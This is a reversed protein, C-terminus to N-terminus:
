RKRQRAPFSRLDLWIRDRQNEPIRSELTDLTTKIGPKKEANPDAEYTQWKGKRCFWQENGRSNVKENPVELDMQLLASAGIPTVGSNAQQDRLRTWKLTLGLPPLNLDSHVTLQWFNGREAEEQVLERLSTLQDANLSANLCQKKWLEEFGTPPPGECEWTVWERMRVWLRKAFERDTAIAHPFQFRQTWPLTALQKEWEVATGTQFADTLSRTPPTQLSQLATEDRYLFDRALELMITKQSKGGYLLESLETRYDPAFQATFKVTISAANECAEDPKAEQLLLSLTKRTTTLSPDTWSTSPTRSLHTSDAHGRVSLYNSQAYKALQVLQNRQAGRPQKAATQLITQFLEWAIPVNMSPPEIGLSHYDWPMDISRIMLEGVQDLSEKGQLFDDLLHQLSGDEVLLSRQDRQCYLVGYEGLYAPKASKVFKEWFPRAQQRRQRLYAAVELILTSDEARQSRELLNTELIPFLNEQGLFLLVAVARSHAIDDSKQLWLALRAEEKLDRTANLWRQTRDEAVKLIKTEDEGARERDANEEQVTVPLLYLLFSGALDILRLKAGGSMWDSQIKSERKDRLMEVFALFRKSRDGLLDLLNPTLTEWAFGPHKAKVTELPIGFEAAFSVVQCIHLHRGDAPLALLEESLSKGEAQLTRPLLLFGLLGAFLIFHKQM